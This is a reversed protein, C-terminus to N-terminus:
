DHLHILYLTNQYHYDVAELEEENQAAQAKNLLGFLTIKKLKGSGDQSQYVTKAPERDKFISDNIATIVNAKYRDFRHNWRETREEPDALEFVKPIASIQTAAISLLIIVFLKKKM